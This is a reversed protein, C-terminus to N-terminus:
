SQLTAKACFSISLFRRRMVDALCQLKDARDSHEILDTDKQGWGHVVKNRLAYDRLLDDRSARTPETCKRLVHLKEFHVKEGLDRLASQVM